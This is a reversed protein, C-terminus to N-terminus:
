NLKKKLRQLLQAADHLQSETACRAVYDEAAGLADRLNGRRAEVLSLERWLSAYTPAFLVMRRLIAAARSLDGAQVARTKLNNQLRMLVERKSAPEYFSPQLEAADGVMRRLIARMGEADRSAGGEFPDLVLWEGAAEIRVLFYYPFTLGVMTWGAAEAAHIFLIGLAVPLGKRRDIVRILNANQVDDYTLSDGAYGHRVFLVDHLAGARDAASSVNAAAAVIDDAIEALHDRYRALAVNPRDLSALTLACQVVDIDRDDITAIRRLDDQAITEPAIM